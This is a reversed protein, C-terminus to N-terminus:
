GGRGEYGRRGSGEGGPAAAGRKLSRSAGHVAAAGLNDLSSSLLGLYSLTYLQDGIM